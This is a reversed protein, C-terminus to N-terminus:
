RVSNDPTYFAEEIALRAVNEGISCDCIKCWTNKYFVNTALAKWTHGEACEWEHISNIGKCVDTLMKGGNAAAKEQLMETTITDNAYSKTCHPCNMRHDIEISSLAKRWGIGCDKCVIVVGDKGRAVKILVGDTTGINFKSVMSYAAMKIKNFALKDEKLHSLRITLFFILIEPM